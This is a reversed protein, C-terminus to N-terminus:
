GKVEKGKELRWGREQEKGNKRWKKGEERDKSLSVGSLQM